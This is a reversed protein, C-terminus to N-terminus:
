TASPKGYPIARRGIGFRPWTFTAIMTPNAWEKAEMKEKLRRFLHPPARNEPQAELNTLMNQTRSGVNRKETSPELDM